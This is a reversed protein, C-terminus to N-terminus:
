RKKEGKAEKKIGKSKESVKVKNAAQKSKDGKGQKESTEAAM